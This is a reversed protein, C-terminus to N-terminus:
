LLTISVGSNLSQRHPADDSLLLSRDGVEDSARSEDM